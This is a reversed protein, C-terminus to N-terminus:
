IRLKLGIAQTTTIKHPQRIEKIIHAPADSDLMNGLGFKHAAM